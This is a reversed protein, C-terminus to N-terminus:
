PAPVAKSSGALRIRDGIVLHGKEDFLKLAESTVRSASQSDNSETLVAALDLLSEGRWVLFDTKAGLEAGEFALKKALDIDGRRALIRARVGRWLIQSALDGTAAIAESRSTCSMAEDLHGKQELVRGLLAVSTSLTSTEGMMELARCGDRLQREAEDYDGGLMEIVSTYNTMAAVSFELGIDRGLRRCDECEARAEGFAGTMAKLGAIKTRTSIEIVGNGGGLERIAECRGIAIPVPTPGHFYVIPLMRLIGWRSRLDGALQSFELAESFAAEMQSGRCLLWNIHGLLSSVQAMGAQDGLHSLTARADECLKTAADVDVHADTYLNMLVQEVRCLLELRREGLIVSQEIADDLDKSAQAHDGVFRLAHALEPVLELAREPEDSSVSIARRLLGTAARLDGRALGRRGAASLWSAAQRAVSKTRDDLRGVEIQNRYSQEFHYGLIEEWETARAGAFDILWQAFREHLEARVRKPVGAYAADRIVINRFQFEPDGATESQVPRIVAGAVLSDVAEAVDHPPLAAMRSVASLHFSQGEIAGSEVVARESESMRDLHSSILAELSKPLEYVPHEVLASVLEETFLPNGGAKDIVTTREAKDLPALGDVLEESEAQTLPQLEIVPWRPRRSRLEPRAVALVLLPARIGVVLSDVLDLFGEEAWQLDDLCVVIPRGAAAGELAARAAWAIDEKTVSGGETFGLANALVIAARAWRPDDAFLQSVKTLVEGASEEDSIGAIQKVIEALPWYTIDNGYTLCRGFFFSADLGARFEEVLRSKGMGAEGLVAVLTCRQTAAVEGMADQLRSLEFSRGVMRAHVPRASRGVPSVEVLRFARLPNSKGKATILSMEEFTASHHTLEYTPYGVVIEGAAAAQELRAATNVADGLVIGREDGTAAVVVGSYVGIRVSLKLGFNRELRRNLEALRDKMGVTARLARLADDEHTVPVGFVAMVADGIYKAITGGHEEIAQRMAEFYLLMVERVVETDRDEAMQTSGVLDCFVM